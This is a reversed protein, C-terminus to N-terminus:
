DFDARTLPCSKKAKKSNKTFHRPCDIALGGASQWPLSAKGERLRAFRYGACGNKAQRYGAPLSM